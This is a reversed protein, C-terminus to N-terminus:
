KKKFCSFINGCKIKSVETKVWQGAQIFNPNKSIQIIDEITQEVILSENAIRNKLSSAQSSTLLKLGVLYDIATPLFTIVSQLKENSTLSSKVADYEEVVGMVLSVIKNFTPVATGLWTPALKELINLLDQVAAM